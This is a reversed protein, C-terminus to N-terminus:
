RVGRVMRGPPADTDANNRRTVVGSVVTAVTAVSGAADQTLRTGVAPLDSVARPMLLDLRELDIVNLDAKKGIALTSCSSTRRSPRPWCSRRASRRRGVPDPM